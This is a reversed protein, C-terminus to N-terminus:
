KKAKRKPKLKIVNGKPEIEPEKKEPRDSGDGTYFGANMALFMGIILPIIIIMAIPFILDEM